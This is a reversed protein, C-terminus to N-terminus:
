AVPRHEVEFPRPPSPEALHKGLAIDGGHLTSLYKEEQLPEKPNGRAGVPFQSYGLSFLSNM